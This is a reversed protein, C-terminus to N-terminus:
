RISYEALDFERPLRVALAEEFYITPRVLGGRSREWSDPYLRMHLVGLVYRLGAGGCLSRPTSTGGQGHVPKHPCIRAGVVM